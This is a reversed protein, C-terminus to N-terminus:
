INGIKPSYASALINIFTLFMFHEIHNLKWFNSFFM